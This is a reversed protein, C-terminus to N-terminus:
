FIKYQTTDTHITNYIGEQSKKERKLFRKRGELEIIIGNKKNNNNNCDRCLCSERGLIKKGETKSHNGKMKHLNEQFGM